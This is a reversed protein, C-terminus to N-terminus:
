KKIVRKNPVTSDDNQKNQASKEDVTFHIQLDDM